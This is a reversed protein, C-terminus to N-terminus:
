EGGQLLALAARLAHIAPDVYNDIFSEHGPYCAQPIKPQLNTLLEEAEKAARAVAILALVRDPTIQGIFRKAQWTSSIPIGDMNLLDPDFWDGEAEDSAAKAVAELQDLDM